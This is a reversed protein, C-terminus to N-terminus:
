GDHDGESTRSRPFFPPLRADVPRGPRLATQRGGAGDGVFTTLWPHPLAWQGNARLAAELPALREVYEGYSLTSPERRAPDDSLGALLRADGPPADDFFAAADLRYTWGGDPAALVAGQVADFRGDAALRRADTLMAPLDRYFLLQRRVSGPARVLALKARTVIGTQGLGARVADFLEPHRDASCTLADGRGTVVELEAVTDSVAGHTSTTAGIGGVAVTVRQETVPGVERLGSLDVVLGGAGQSRGFTAHGRGRAALPWGREHAYRVAARVDDADRAALVARPREHVLHGFDDAAAERAAADLQMAGSIDATTRRM